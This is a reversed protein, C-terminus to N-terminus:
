RMSIWCLVNFHCLKNNLFENLVTASGHRCLQGDLNCAAPV